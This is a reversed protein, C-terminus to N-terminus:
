GEGEGEERGEEEEGEEGEEREWKFYEEIGKGSEKSAGREKCENDGQGEAGEKAGCREM